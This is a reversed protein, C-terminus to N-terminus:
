SGVWYRGQGVKWPGDKAQLTVSAKQGDWGKGPDWKLGGPPFFVDHLVCIRCWARTLVDPIKWISPNICCSLRYALNIELFGEDDTDWDM